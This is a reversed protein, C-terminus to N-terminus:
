LLRDGIEHFFLLFFILFTDVEIREFGGNQDITDAGRGLIVLRGRQTASDVGGRFQNVQIRIDKGNIAVDQGSRAIVDSVTLNAMSNFEGAFQGSVSEEWSTFGFDPVHAALNVSNDDLDDFAIITACQISASAPVQGDPM